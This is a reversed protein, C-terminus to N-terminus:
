FDAREVYRLLLYIGVTLVGIGIFVFGILNNGIVFSIVVAILYPISLSAITIILKRRTWNIEQWDTIIEGKGTKSEPVKVPQSQGTKGLRLQKPLNPEKQPM